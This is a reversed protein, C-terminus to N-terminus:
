LKIGCKDGNLMRWDSDLLEQATYWWESTINVTNSKKEFGSIISIEEDDEVIVKNYVLDKMEENTFPRYEEKPKYKAEWEEIEMAYKFNVMLGTDGICRFPFSDSYKDCNSLDAYVFTKIADNEDMDWVMMYHPIFPEIKIMSVIIEKAEEYTITQKIKEHTISTGYDKITSVLTSDKRYLLNPFDVSRRDNFTVSGIKIGVKEALNVLEEKKDITVCTILTGKELKKM